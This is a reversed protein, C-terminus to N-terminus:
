LMSLLDGDWADEIPRVWSKKFYELFVDSIAEKGKIVVGQDNM